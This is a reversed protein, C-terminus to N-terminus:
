LLHAQRTFCTGCDELPSSEMVPTYTRQCSDLWGGELFSVRGDRRPRRQQICKVLKIVAVIAAPIGIILALLGVVERM